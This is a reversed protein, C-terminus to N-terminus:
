VLRQLVSDSYVVGTLLHDKMALVMSRAEISDFLYTNVVEEAEFTSFLMQEIEGIMQYCYTLDVYIILAMM